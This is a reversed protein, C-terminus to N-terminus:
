SQEHKLWTESFALFASSTFRGDREEAVIQGTVLQGDLKIAAEGCLMINTYVDYHENGNIGFGGDNLDTIVFLQRKRIDLWLMEIQHNDTHCIIRHYRRSDSDQFLRAPQPTVADFGLHKYEDFHRNFTQTVFQALPLNDAYITLSPHQHHAANTTDLYLLLVNGEGAPSYVSRWYSAAATYTQKDPQMLMIQPNEGCFTVGDLRQLATL